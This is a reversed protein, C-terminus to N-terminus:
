WIWGQGRGRGGWEGNFGRGTEGGKWRIKREGKWGHLLLNTSTISGRQSCSLFLANLTEAEHEISLINRGRELKERM